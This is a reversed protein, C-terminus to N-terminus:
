VVRSGCLYCKRDHSLMNKCMVHGNAYCEYGDKCRVRCDCRMDDSITIPNKKSDGRHKELRDKSTRCPGILEHFEQAAEELFEIDEFPLVRTAVRAVRPVEVEVVHEEVEAVLDEEEEDQVEGTLDLVMHKRNVNEAEEVQEVEVEVELLLMDEEHKRKKKELHLRGLEQNM